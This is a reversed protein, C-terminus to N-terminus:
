LRAIAADAAADAASFVKLRIPLGWRGSGRRGGAARRGGVVGVGAERGRGRGLGEAGAAGGAGRGWGSAGLGEGRLRRGGVVGVGAGRGRGGVVGFDADSQPSDRTVGAAGGHRLPGEVRAVDRPGRPANETGRVLYQCFSDSM